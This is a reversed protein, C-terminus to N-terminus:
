QFLSLVLSSRGNANSLSQTALQEAVQVAQLRASAEALDAEILASVGEELGDTLDGLYARQRDFQKDYAGLESAYRNLKARASDIVLMASEPSLRMAEPNVLSILELFGAQERRAEGDVLDTYFAIDSGGIATTPPLPANGVPETPDDTFEVGDILTGDERGWINITYIGPTPIDVFVRQNSLTDRTGWRADGGAQPIRVGGTGTLVDGNFGVHVSDATGNVGIGRVNVYYRGPNTIQVRYDLRPANAQVQAPTLYIKNPGPLDVWELFGPNTTSPVWADVGVDQKGSFNEANLVFTSGTEIIANNFARKDFDGSDVRLTQVNFSGDVRDLGTVATFGGGQKLLNTDQFSSADIVDRAQDIIDDFVEELQDIAVGNQSVPVLDALQLTLRDLERVGAEAAGISGQSITLNEKLGNLIAIDAKTTNSVLFFAPNDDATQVKLGTSIQSRVVDAASRASRLQKLATIASQNTFVSTM